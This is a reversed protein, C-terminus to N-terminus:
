RMVAGEPSVIALYAAVRARAEPQAAPIQNVANIILARSAASLQGACFLLNMHDVLKDATVAMAVERSFDLPFDYAEDWRTFGDEILSWLMNPFSIATYSDVIQFVPGVKDNATLVGPPKYDPRYYNFVSPSYGPEQKSAQYFDSGENWWQFGPQNKMGFVRAMAMARIVPEKMRGLAGDLEPQTPNRAESDLLIAKVVAGLDGIVGEGNNGYIASVRQVYAPSPNDTVLFQILQRSIFIATNPHRAFHRVADEIDKMANAQTPARAPIVYGGALTKAGFDHRDAHLTMPTAFDDDTWGGDGWEHRSYWMGTFVRALQTIEANGYTPLNNGQGDVARSGDPNLQWLGMSFLQMLERAYNEDPFRNISPDAKQNGVSSLYTGMCPHLTVKLLIDSYNGFANEVFIDYYDAMGKLRSTLNADRRSTVLIQSLAFAVRQRLQDNGQITARAWATTANEGPLFSNAPDASYTMHARPGYFDALIGKIYISHLTAPVTTIQEQIWGDFGLLQVREIDELTPGFAAQMLFRAAQPRTIPPDVNLPAPASLVMSMTTGPSTSATTSANSLLKGGRTFTPAGWFGHPADSTSLEPFRELLAAYDGSIQHWPNSDTNVASRLSNPQSLSSHLVNAELWDSVGDGDSDVDNVEVRYFTPVGDVVGPLAARYHSSNAITPTTNLPTWISLDTSHLIRHSKHLLRPWELVLDNGDKHTTIWLRSKEMLPDTGAISEEANTMGDGDADGRAPLGTVGWYSAVAPNMMLDVAPGMRLAAAMASLATWYSPVSSALLPNSTADVEVGDPAGDGDTDAIRPHTGALYERGNSLGDNDADLAADTSLVKNFLHTTEWVDPMGDKDSDKYAAYAPLNKITATTSSALFYAKLGTALDINMRHDRGNWDRWTVTKAHVNAALTCNAFSRTVLVQKTDLNTITFTLKWTSAKSTTSGSVKFQIRDSIDIKGVGSFGMGTKLDPPNESWDSLWMDGTPNSEASFAGTHDTHFYWNIRSSRMTLGVHLTEYTPTRQKNRLSFECLRTDGGPGDSYIGKSHDWIFQSNIQWTFTKATTGSVVPMLFKSSNASMAFTGEELEDGDRRGDADSDAKNPNTAVPLATVETGDSLGDGDTDANQPDSGTSTANTYKRTNTEVKDTLGDGDTDALNPRTKRKYEDLNSLSDGDLDLTGDKVGPNLKHTMEWWDPMGDKDTDLLSEVIQVGHLGVSDWGTRNLAVTLTSGKIGKYRIANGRWPRAATAVYPEIFQTEPASSCSLFFRDTAASNNLRVYGKSGNYASGVYVIVDYTSYPIKTFVVKAPTSSSCWLGTDLLKQNPGGSNGSLWTGASSWSITTATAVGACNVLKGTMPSVLDLATGAITAPNWQSLYLTRNWNMQPFVGTIELPSLAAAPNMESVFQVGIANAFPTPKSTALTANTGLRNEWGDPAGDGDTDIVLPNLAPSLALEIGDSLGDGDTDALLPNTTIEQGDKLGDNDSDPDNPDTDKPLEQLNTLGDGDSDLAADEARTDSFGHEQEWWQPLGDTDTDVLATANVDMALMDFQFWADVTGGTRTLEIVNEGEVTGVDNANFSTTLTQDHNFTRNLVEHGNVKVSVTHTAFDKGNTNKAAIWSGGWIAMITLRLRSTASAQAATLNFHIRSTPDGTSLAREFLDEPEQTSVLGVPAAYTGPFYYDDDRETASGANPTANNPYGEDGFETPNWNQTGMSWLSTWDAHVPPALFALAFLLCLFTRYHM